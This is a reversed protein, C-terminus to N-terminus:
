RQENVLTYSPASKAADVLASIDNTNHGSSIKAPDFTGLRHMSPELDIAM